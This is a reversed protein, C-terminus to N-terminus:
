YGAIHHAVSEFSRASRISHSSEGSGIALDDKHAIMGELKKMWHKAKYLKENNQREYRADIEIDAENPDRGWGQKRPNYQPRNSPPKYNPDRKSKLEELREMQIKKFERVIKPDTLDVDMEDAMKKAKGRPRKFDLNM